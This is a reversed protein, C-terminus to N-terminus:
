LVENLVTVADVQSLTYVGLKRQRDVAFDHLVFHDKFAATFWDRIHHRWQLATEPKKQRLEDISLPIGVHLPSNDLRPARGPLLLGDPGLQPQNAPVPLARAPPASELTRKVRPRDLWWEVGFRDTPLGKNLEDRFTGYLNTFYERVIVGLKNLNFHANLSQLPDFTWTMLSFGQALAERRQACKLQYAIGQNRYEPRVASMVSNHTPMGYQYGVFGYVFGILQDRDFAGLVIGGRKEFTLLLHAPVVSLDAFGWTEKQLAECAFFEELTNLRRYHITVMQSM